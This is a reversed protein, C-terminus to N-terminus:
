FSRELEWYGAVSARPCNRGFLKQLPFLTPSMCLLVSFISMFLLVFVFSFHSDVGNIQYFLVYSVRRKNQEVLFFARQCKTRM